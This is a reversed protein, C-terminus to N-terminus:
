ARDRQWPVSRRVEDGTDEGAVFARQNGARSIEDAFDQSEFGCTSRVAASSGHPLSASALSDGTSAEARSSACM